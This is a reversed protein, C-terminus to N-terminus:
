GCLGGEARVAQARRELRARQRAARQRRREDGREELRLLQTGRPAVVVGRRPKTLEALGEVRLEEGDVQELLGERGREERVDVGELGRPQGHAPGVGHVLVADDDVVDAELM